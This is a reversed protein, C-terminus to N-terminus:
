ESLTTIMEKAADLTNDLTYAKQYQVLAEEKRGLEYLTNAYNFYHPAYEPDLAIARLHHTVALDDEELHHLVNALMAHGMDHKEDVTLLKELTAKAETYAESHLHAYALKYLTEISEEDLILASGLAKKAEEFDGKEVAKDAHAHLEELRGTAIKPKSFTKDARTIGGLQEDATKAEFDVGRKPYSGNFLQKFFMYFVAGSIIMLLLQFTTMSIGKDLISHYYKEAKTFWFSNLYSYLEEFPM